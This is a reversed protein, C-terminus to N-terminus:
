VMVGRTLLKVLWVTIDVDVAWIPCIICIAENPHGASARGVLTVEVLAFFLRLPIRVGLVVVEPTAAVM